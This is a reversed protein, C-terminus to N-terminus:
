WIPTKVKAKRGFYIFACGGIAFLGAMFLFLPSKHKDIAKNLDLYTFNNSAISYVFFPDKPRNLYKGFGNPIGITLTDGYPISKFNDKQLISFFDAKIKFRNSYNQLKFTLSSGSRGGHDVWSYEHFPGNIFAIDSKSEIREKDFYLFLMSVTSALGLIGAWILSGRDRRFGLKEWNIKM